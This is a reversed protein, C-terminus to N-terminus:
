EWTFRRVTSAPSAAEIVLQGDANTKVRALSVQWSYTASQGTGPALEPGLRYSTAKTWVSPLAQTVGSEPYILLVYWENPQLVDVSIWRFLVEDTRAIRSGDAPGILRPELYITTTDEAVTGISTSPAEAVATAASELVESPTQRLPITLQDGPRIIDRETLNNIRLIEEVTSGFNVAISIITDGTRVTYQFRSTTGETLAPPAGGEQLM